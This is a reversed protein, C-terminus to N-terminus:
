TAGCPWRASPGIPGWEIADVVGSHIGITPVGLAAAIHKPGSDNGIYLACASLLAAPRWRPRAPWRCSPRATCCTASATSESVAVEDPGGVLMVNVATTEILLDILAAFHEEPWQKTINGAGPHVAVVPSPSCRASRRRCTM